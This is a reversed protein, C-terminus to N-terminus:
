SRGATRSLGYTNQMARAIGGNNALDNHISNRVMVDIQAQGNSGRTQRTEIQAGGYNHVNVTAAGGGGGNPIISGGGNPMFLEPGREGVVYARGGSVPGGDARAGSMQFNQAM